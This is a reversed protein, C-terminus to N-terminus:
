KKRLATDSPWCHFKQLKTEIWIQISGPLIQSMLSSQKLKISALFHLSISNTYICTQIHNLVSQCFKLIMKLPMLFLILTKFSITFFLFVVLFSQFYFLSLKARLYFFLPNDPLQSNPEYANFTM